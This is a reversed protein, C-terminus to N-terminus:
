GARLERIDYTGSWAGPSNGIILTFSKRDDSLLAVAPEIIM